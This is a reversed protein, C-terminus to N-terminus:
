NEKVFKGLRRNMEEACADGSGEGATVTRGISGILDPDGKGQDILSLILAAMEAQCKVCKCVFGYGNWLEEQRWTLSCDEDIYSMYINENKKIARLAKGQIRGTEGIRSVEM